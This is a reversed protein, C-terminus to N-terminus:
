RVQITDAAWLVQPPILSPTLNTLRASTAIFVHPAAFYVAPLHEAFVRQVEAFTQKRETDNLTAIQKAMLEDIRQEWDTAPTKQAPNWFHQGGSSIWFDLNSAPDVDTAPAGLYIAEYNGSYIRKVVELFDLMVVDVAVGVNKLEDRIVAVARERDSRGKQTLLTFRAPQNRADELLGDGNRDALGISALLQRARAPDYAARPVDPAYWKKNVPSIPGFVPAGAGLYVTNLFLERNVAMSVARRLEDRQIWAARRDDKKFAGPKLNIWLSDADYGDGVDPLTIKRQDALRKLPAYDAPRLETAILDSQGSQLRLTEADQEPVIELTLRDLYPLSKGSADKRWYRPNRAFVLRQGPEFASLVFPGLSVLDRVPTALGWAKALTGEKLARELRHKPLIWLNDLIRLGPGFPSPFTIVVTQADPAEVRLPKGGVRVTESIPSATKEDYVAAFSFVVDDATFPHGDSFAVNPRLKLIYRLGDASSTWSEALWPEIEWTARNIRVLQGYTLRGILDVM